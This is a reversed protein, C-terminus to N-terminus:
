SGLRITVLQGNSANSKDDLSDGPNGEKTDIKDDDPEPSGGSPEDKDSAGGEGSQPPTDKDDSNDGEDQNSDNDQSPNSTPPEVAPGRRVRRALERGYSLASLRYHVMDITIPDDIDALWLVKQTYDHIRLRLQRLEVSFDARAETENFNGSTMVAYRELTRMIEEWYESGVFNNLEAVVGEKTLRDARTAMYVYQDAYRLKLFNLTGDPFIKAKLEAAKYAKEAGVGSLKAMATLMDFLVTWALDAEKDITQDSLVAWEIQRRERRQLVLRARETEERLKLIAKDLQLYEGEVARELLSKALAITGALTLLPPRMYSETLYSSKAM